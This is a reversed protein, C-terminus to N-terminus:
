DILSSQFLRDRSSETRNHKAYMRAVLVTDQIIHSLEYSNYNYYGTYAALQDIKDRVQEPTLDIKTNSHKVLGRFLEYHINFYDKGVSKYRSKTLKPRASRTTVYPIHPQHYYDKLSEYYNVEVRFLIPDNKIMEMRQQDITRGDVLMDLVEDSEIYDIFTVQTKKSRRQKTFLGLNYWEYLYWVFYYLFLVFVLGLGSFLLRLGLAKKDIARYSSKCKLAALQTCDASHVYTNDSCFNRAKWFCQHSCEYYETRKDCLEQDICRSWETNWCADGKSYFSCKSNEISYCIPDRYEVSYEPREIYCYKVAMSCGLLILFFFMVNYLFRTNEEVKNYIVKEREDKLTKRPISFGQLLSPDKFSRKLEKRFERERKVFGTQKREEEKKKEEIVSDIKALLSDEMFRRGDETKQAEEEEREMRSEEIADREGQLKEVGGEISKIIADVKKVYRTGGKGSNKKKNRCERAYHGFKNCNRCQIKSKDNRASM